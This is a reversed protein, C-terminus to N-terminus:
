GLYKADDKKGGFIKNAIFCLIGTIMMAPITSGILLDENMFLRYVVFGILWLVLNMGYVNQASHNKKIIFYDVILISIMPAFVSSILYLFTEFQSVPAAIALLMGILGVVIATPKQKIKESISQASLGASYVDLFTTTVTSFIIIILAAIGLGAKLMISAIDSEATFLAAGLGIVYMWCSVAFYVATSALTTGFPKKASCTYDSILPLWSLPMAISLEM